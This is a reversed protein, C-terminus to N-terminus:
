RKTIKMTVYMGSVAILLLIFPIRVLEIARTEVEGKMRSDSIKEIDSVIDDVATPEEGIYMKGGTNEVVAKMENYYQEMMSQIGIGFVSIKKSKCFEGADELSVIPDGNIENDTSLIILKTREDDETFNMAAATLGDGILSGGYDGSMTGSFIYNEYYYDELDNEGRKIIEYGNKIRELCEIVYEYDDTLSTLVVPTCNFIVIGIREGDMKKVLELIADVLVENAEDMSRSIDLCLIIDKNYRDKDVIETKYPRAIILLSIVIALICFVCILASLVRFLIIKRKYYSEQQIYLNGITKKGGTYDEKKKLDLMAVVILLVAVVIGAIFVVTHKLEM